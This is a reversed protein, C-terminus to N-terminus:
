KKYANVVEVGNKVSGVMLPFEVGSNPVYHVEQGFKKHGSIYYNKIGEADEIHSIVDKAILMKQYYNGRQNFPNLESKNDMNEIIALAQENVCSNYYTFWFAGKYMGINIDQWNLGTDIICTPHDQTGVFIWGNENTTIAIYPKTGTKKFRVIRTSNLNLLTYNLSGYYSEEKANSLYTGKNFNLMHRRGGVVDNLRKLTTDKRQEGNLMKSFNPVMRQLRNFGSQNPQAAASLWNEGVWRSSMTTPGTTSWVSSVAGNQAVRNNNVLLDGSGYSTNKQIRQNYINVKGAFDNDSWTKFVSPEFFGQDQDSEFRYDAIHSFYDISNYLRRDKIGISNGSLTEHVRSLSTEYSYSYYYYNNTPLLTYKDLLKGNQYVQYCKASNKYYAKYQAQSNITFLPTQVTDRSGNYSYLKNDKKQISYIWMDVSVKSERGNEGAGIPGTYRTTFVGKIDKYPIKTALKPKFGSLSAKPRPLELGAKNYANGNANLTVINGPAHRGGQCAMRTYQGPYTTANPAKKHEIKGIYDAHGKNVSEKGGEWSPYNKKVIYFKADLPRSADPTFWFTSRPARYDPNGNYDVVGSASSSPFIDCLDYPKWEWRAGTNLQNIDVLAWFTGNENYITKSDFIFRGNLTIFNNGGITTKNKITCETIRFDLNIDSNQWQTALAGYNSVDVSIKKYKEFKSEDVESLLDWTTKKGNVLASLNYRFILGKPCESM